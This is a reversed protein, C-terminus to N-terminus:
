AQEPEIVVAIRPELGAALKIAVEYSGTQRLPKDIDVKRKDIPFGVVRSLEQAIDAATISGFLREGAGMRAQFRIKSGEIQKAQEALKAKDSMEEQSEKQVRSEAQKVIAPTAEVALGRPLLFNKAYGRSVEKLEGARGVGSVDALFIVKVREGKDSQAM